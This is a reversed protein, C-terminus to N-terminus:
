YVVLLTLKFQLTQLPDYHKASAPTSPKSMQEVGRSVEQSVSNARFANLDCLFICMEGNKTLFSSWKGYEFVSLCLKDCPHLSESM